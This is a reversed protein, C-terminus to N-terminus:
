TLGTWSVDGDIEITVSGKASKDAPMDFPTGTVYGSGEFYIVGDTAGDTGGDETINLQFALLDGSIGAQILLLQGADIADTDVPDFGWLVDFSLKNDTLGPFKRQSTASDTAIKEIDRTPDYKKNYADSVRVLSPGVYLRVLNGDIPTVGM